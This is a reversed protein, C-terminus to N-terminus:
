LTFAQMYDQLQRVREIFDEPVALECRDCLVMDWSPRTERPTGPQGCRECVSQSRAAFRYTIRHLQRDQIHWAQNSSGACDQPGWPLPWAHFALEAEKQEVARLSYHPFESVVAQHCERVLGIWGPGIDFMFPGASLWHAAVAGLLSTYESEWPTM